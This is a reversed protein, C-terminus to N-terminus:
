GPHGELMEATRIGLHDVGLKIVLTDILPYTSKFFPHYYIGLFTFDFAYLQTDTFNSEFEALPPKPVKHVLDM